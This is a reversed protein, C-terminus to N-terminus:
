REVAENEDGIARKLPIYFLIMLVGTIASLGAMWIFFREHTIKEWYTGLYGSLYNGFFSSLLWIGMMLSVIRAPSIKTVLSLGVPSLYIEGVTLLATCGILWWASALGGSEYVRAGGIMILFSIALLFCGIAMKAVSNPETGRKAQWAWLPNIGLTFLGIFFPNVAQFVSAPMEWDSGFLTLMKRNTNGDAWLALTNGQQEYVAWFLVNLLCLVVLAGVKQWEESTFPKAAPMEAKTTKAELMINDPALYKQGWIYLLLGCVMGVGAAGFGWHWGWTEGLIGCVIPSLFAGLNIGVYFINYARDRRPDGPPYLAGVQTSVNPKFAGNGLILVFLAVYFLSSFAMLFHGIAMLIGGVIVTKRQGLWQDAMIGGFVPTLYVLGTYIGYIQSSLQQSTQPGFVWEIAHVMGGHGVVGGAHEPLFLYKTMYFVLIARMGYYSFREWMETFFLVYLGVPHGFIEGSKVTDREDSM